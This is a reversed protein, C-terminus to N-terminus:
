GAGETRVGADLGLSSFAERHQDAAGAGPIQQKALLGYLIPAAKNMLTTGTPFGEARGDAWLKWIEGDPGRLEFLLSSLITTMAVGLILGALVCPQLCALSAPVCSECCRARRPGTIGLGENSALGLMLVGPGCLPSASNEM